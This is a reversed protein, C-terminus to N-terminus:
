ESEGTKEANDQFNTTSEIPTNGAAKLSIVRTASLKDHWALGNADMLLWKLGIAAGLSDRICM